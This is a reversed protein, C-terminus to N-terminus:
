ADSSWRDIPQAELRADPQAFEKSSRLSRIFDTLKGGAAKAGEHWGLMASRVLALYHITSLLLSSELDVIAEFARRLLFGGAESRFRAETAYSANLGGAAFISAALIRKLM